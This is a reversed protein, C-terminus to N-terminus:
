LPFGGLEGWHRNGLIVQFIRRHSCHATPRSMAICGPVNRMPCLIGVTCRRKYSELTVLTAELLELKAAHTAKRLELKTAINLLISYVLTPYGGSTRTEAFLTVGWSAGIAIESFLRFFAAILVTRQLASCNLVLGPM